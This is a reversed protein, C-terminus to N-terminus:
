KMLYTVNYWKCYLREPNAQGVLKALAREDTQSAGHEALNSKVSTFVSLMSKKNVSYSNEWDTLILM